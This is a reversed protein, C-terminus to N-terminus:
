INSSVIRGYLPEHELDQSARPKSRGGREMPHSGIPHDDLELAAHSTM